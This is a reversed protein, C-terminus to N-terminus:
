KKEVQKRDGEITGGKTSFWNNNIQIVHGNYPDTTGYYVWQSKRQPTGGEQLKGGRNYGNGNTPAGHYEGQMCTGNPMMHQGSPCSGGVQGGAQRGRTPARNPDRKRRRHRRKGRGVWDLDDQGGQEVMGGMQKGRRTGNRRSKRRYHRRKWDLDDNMKSQGGRAMKRKPKVKGGKKYNSPNPLQGPQYGGQHHTTATSNLEDLFETGVANTTQANIIYEGGELEVQGGNQINAPIGGQEHSPGQLYGGAQKKRIPGGKRRAPRRAPGGRRNIGRGKTMIMELENHPDTVMQSDTDSM